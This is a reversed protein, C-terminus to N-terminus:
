TLWVTGVVLVAAGVALYSIKVPTSANTWLGTIKELLATMKTVQADPHQYPPEADAPVQRQRQNIWEPSAPTRPQKM